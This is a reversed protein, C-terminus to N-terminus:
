GTVYEAQHHQVTLTVRNPAELVRAPCRLLDRERFQLGRSGKRGFGRDGLRTQIPRVKEKAPLHTNGM